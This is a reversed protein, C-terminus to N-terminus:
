HNRCVRGLMAAVDDSIPAELPDLAELYDQAAIIEKRALELLSFAEGDKQEILRMASIIFMAADALQNGAIYAADNNTTATTSNATAM